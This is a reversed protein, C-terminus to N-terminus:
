DARVTGYMRLMRLSKFWESMRRPQGPRMLYDVQEQTLRHRVRRHRKDALRMLEDLSRKKDGKPDSTMALAGLREWSWQPWITKPNMAWDSYGSKTRMLEACLWGKGSRM